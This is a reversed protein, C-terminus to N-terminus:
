TSTSRRRGTQSRTSSSPHSEAGGANNVLVDLGGLGDVLAAIAKAAGPADALDLQEVVARRGHGEVEAATGAAGDRDEHWTVGVDYGAEALAVAAARGIGSDSGTVVALPRTSSASM